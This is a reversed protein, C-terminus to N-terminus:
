LDNYDPPRLLGQAFRRFLDAGGCIVYEVSALSSVNLREDLFRELLM